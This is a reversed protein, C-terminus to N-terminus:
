PSSNATDLFRNCHATCSKGIDSLSMQTRMKVTTLISKLTFTFAFVLLTAAAGKIDDETINETKDVSTSSEVEELMSRVFSIDSNGNAMSTKVFAFPNEYFERVMSYSRRAFNLAPFIKVWSPLRRLFPVIDVFTEGPPGGNAFFWTMKDTLKLYPDNEETVKIGYTVALILSSSFRTISERWQGPKRLIQGLLAYTLAEQKERYQVINTPSFANQLMKRHRRFTPGISMFAISDAWGSEEFFNFDPRDSYISSRKDMLDVAAQASNLIATPQGMLNLYLVDSRYEKAWKQYCLEARASPVKRVHGIVPDAPPGPPLPAPATARTGISIRWGVIALVLLVVLITSSFSM